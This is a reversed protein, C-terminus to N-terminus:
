KIELDWDLEWCFLGDIGVSTLYRDNQLLTIDRIAGDHGKFIYQCQSSEMQWLRVTKDNSASFLYKGDDTLYLSNVQDQHGTMVNKCAGSLIDWICISGDGYGSVIEKGNKTITLSTVVGEHGKFHKIFKPRSVDFMLLNMNHKDDHGGLFLHRDDTSFTLAQCCGTKLTWILKGTIYEWLRVTKDAGGSLVMTRNDPIAIALVERYAFTRSGQHGKYSLKTKGQQFSWLQLCDQNPATTYSAILLHNTDVVIMDSIKNEERISQALNFQKTEKKELPDIVWFRSEMGM